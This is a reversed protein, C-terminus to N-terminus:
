RVRKITLKPSGVSELCLSDSPGKKYSFQWDGAPFTEGNLVFTEAASVRLPPSDPKMEDILKQVNMTGESNM